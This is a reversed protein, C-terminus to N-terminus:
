FPLLQRLKMREIMLFHCQPMLPAGCSNSISLLVFHKFCINAFFSSLNIIEFTFCCRYNEDAGLRSKFSNVTWAGMEVGNESSLWAFRWVSTSYGVTIQLLRRYKM